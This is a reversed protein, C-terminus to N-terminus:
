LVGAANDRIRLSDHSSFGERLAQEAQALGCSPQMIKAAEALVTLIAGETVAHTHVMREETTTLGQPQTPEIIAGCGLAIGDKTGDLTVIQAVQGWVERRVFKGERVEDAIGILEVNIGDKIVGNLRIIQGRVRIDIPSQRKVTRGRGLNDCCELAAVTDIVGVDLAKCIKDEDLQRPAVAAKVISSRTAHREVTALNVNATTVQM